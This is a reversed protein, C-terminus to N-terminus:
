CCYLSVGKQVLMSAFSYHLTHFHIKGYLGIRRVTKNIRVYM